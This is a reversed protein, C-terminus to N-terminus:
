DQHRRLHGLRRQGSTDGALQGRRYTRVVLPVAPVGPHPQPQRQMAPFDRM